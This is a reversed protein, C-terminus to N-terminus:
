GYKLELKEKKDENEMQRKSFGGALSLGFSVM